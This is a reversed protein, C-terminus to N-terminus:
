LAVSYDKIGARQGNRHVIFDGKPRPGEEPSLSFSAPLLRKEKEGPRPSPFTFLKM